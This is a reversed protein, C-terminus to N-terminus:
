SSALRQALEGIAVRGQDGSSLDKLTAEGAAMENRGVIIAYRAGM